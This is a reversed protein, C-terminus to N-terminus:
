HCPRIIVGQDSAPIVKEIVAVPRAILSPFVRSPVGLRSISSRAATFMEDLSRSSKKFPIGRDRNVASSAPRAFM